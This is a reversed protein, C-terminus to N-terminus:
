DVGIDTLWEGKGNKIASDGNVDNTSATSAAKAAAIEEKAAKETVQHFDSERMMQGAKNKLQGIYSSALVFLDQRQNKEEDRVREVKREIIQALKTIVPFHPLIKMLIIFANRIQMYDKSDLCFVMARTIKYHWKHCVHRYNEYGVHDNAESFQNSVRFKTVFGPYNACEKNFTAQDSHWRMVTELMACLFRGYRHAENETCSTVCYTIDCFIQLLFPEIFEM